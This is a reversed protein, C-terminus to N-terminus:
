VTLPEKVVLGRTPIQCKTAGLRASDRRVLRGLRWRSGTPRDPPGADLREVPPTRRRHLRGSSCRRAHWSLREGAPVRGRGADVPYAELTTAGHARAYTSRPTSSRRERRGPRARRALRRLLRDVLGAHRRGARPGELYALREYDERPGLSVWGVARGDRYGVLGPRWITANPWTGRARGPERGGDLEVLGPRPVPLLHVLVVESRRGGRVPGGPRRVPGHHAAPGRARRDQADSMTMRRYDRAASGESTQGDRVRRTREASPRGERGSPPRQAKRGIGGSGREITSSIRAPVSSASSAACSQSSTSARTGITTAAPGCPTPM